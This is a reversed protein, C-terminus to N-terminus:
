SSSSYHLPQSSRDGRPPPSHVLLLLFHVTNDWSHYECIMRTTSRDQSRSSAALGCAAACSCKSATAFNLSLILFTWLRYQTAQPSTNIFISDYSYYRSVCLLAYSRQSIIHHSKKTFKSCVEVTVRSQGLIQRHHLHYDVLSYLTFQDLRREIPDEEPLRLHQQILCLLHTLNTM